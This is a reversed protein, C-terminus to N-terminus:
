YKVNKCDSVRHWIWKSYNLVIILIFRIIWMKVSPMDVKFYIYYIWVILWCLSLQDSFKLKRDIDPMKCSRSVDDGTCCYRMSMGRYKLSYIWSYISSIAFNFALSWSCPAADSLFCCNLSWEPYPSLWHSIVYSTMEWQSLGYGSHDRCHYMGHMFPIYSTQMGSSFKCIYAIVLASLPRNSIQHMYDLGINIKWWNSGMTYGFSISNM